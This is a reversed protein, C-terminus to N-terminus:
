GSSAPRDLDHIVPRSYNDDIRDIVKQLAPAYGDDTDVVILPCALALPEYLESQLREAMPLLKRLREQGCLPDTRMRREFRQLAHSSRCHVNMLVSRAALCRAVDPESVGRVFTQEAVFSVGLELWLEMTRYFPEIGPAGLEVARDSTRWIAHVLQDKHLAPLDLGAALADALTSKGSGPAGSV